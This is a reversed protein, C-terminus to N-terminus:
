MAVFSALSKKKELGVFEVSRFDRELHCYKKRCFYHKKGHINVAM